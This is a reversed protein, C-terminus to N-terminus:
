GNRRGPQPTVDDTDRTKRPPEPPEPSVLWGAETKGLLNVLQYQLGETSEFVFRENPLHNKSHDLAIWGNRVRLLTIAEAGHLNPKPPTWAQPKTATVSM